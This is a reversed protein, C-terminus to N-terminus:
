RRSQQCFIAGEPTQPYKEYHDKIMEACTGPNDMYGFVLTTPAAEGTGFARKMVFVSPSNEGFRKAALNLAYFPDRLFLSATFITCGMGVVLALAVIINKMAVGRELGIVM